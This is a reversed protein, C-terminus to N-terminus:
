RDRTVANQTRWRAVTLRHENDASSDDTERRNGGQLPQKRRTRHRHKGSMRVLGRGRDRASGIVYYPRGLVATVELLQGTKRTRADDTAFGVYHEHTTVRVDHLGDARGLRHSFRQARDRVAAGHEHETCGTHGFDVQG